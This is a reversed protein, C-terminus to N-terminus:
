TEVVIMNLDLGNAIKFSNTVNSIEDDELEYQHTGNIFLIYTNRFVISYYKPTTFQIYCEACINFSCSCSSFYRNRGFLKRFKLDDEPHNYELITTNDKFENCKRCFKEM